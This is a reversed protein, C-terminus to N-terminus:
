IKFREAKSLEEAGRAKHIFEDDVNLEINFQLQMPVLMREEFISLQIIVNVNNNPADGADNQRTLLRRAEYGSNTKTTTNDTDLYCLCNKAVSRSFHDSYVLLNKIFTVNHLNDTDYVIKGSSKIILHKILSHSGNIVTTIEANYHTVDALKQLQFQVEFYAKYWDYFNSRYNVTFKYGNKIQHQSNGPARIVDHLQYRVLLEYRKLFESSRLAM